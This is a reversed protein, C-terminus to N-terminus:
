GSTGRQSCGTEGGMCELDFGGFVLTRGRGESGGRGNEQICLLRVEGMVLGRECTSEKNSQCCPTMENDERVERFCRASLVTCVTPVSMKASSVNLLGGKWLTGQGGQVTLVTM